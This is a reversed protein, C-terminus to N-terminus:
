VPEADREVAVAGDRGFFETPIVGRDTETDASLCAWSASSLSPPNVTTSSRRFSRFFRFLSSLSLFSCLCFSRCSLFSRFSRASIPRPPRCQLCLDVGNDLLGVCNKLPLFRRGASLVVLPLLFSLVALSLCRCIHCVRATHSLVVEIAAADRLAGTLCQTISNHGNCSLSSSFPSLLCTM